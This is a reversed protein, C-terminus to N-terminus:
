NHGQELLTYLCLRTSFAIVKNSCFACFFGLPGLQFAGIGILVTMCIQFCNFIFNHSGMVAM